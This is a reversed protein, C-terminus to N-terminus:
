KRDPSCRGDFAADIGGGQEPGYFRGTLQEGPGMMAWGRTSWSASILWVQMLHGAYLSRCLTVQMSRDAHQVFLVELPGPADDQEGQDDACREIEDRQQRHQENGASDEVDAS